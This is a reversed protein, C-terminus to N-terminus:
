IRANPNSFLKIAQAKTWMSRNLADRKAKIFSDAIRSPMPGFEKVYETGELRCMVMVFKGTTDYAKHWEVVVKGDPM